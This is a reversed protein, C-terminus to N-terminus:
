VLEDAKAEGGEADESVENTSCRRFAWPQICPALSVVLWDHMYSANAPNCGPDFQSGNFNNEAKYGTSEGYWQRPAKKSKHNAYDKSPANILPSCFGPM